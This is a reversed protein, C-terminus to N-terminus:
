NSVTTTQVKTDRNTATIKAGVVVAGSPDTVSGTISAFTTQSYAPWGALVVIAAALVLRQEKTM